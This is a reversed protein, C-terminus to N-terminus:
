HPRYLRFGVVGLAVGVAGAPIALVEGRVLVGVAIVLGFWGGVMLLAALVDRLHTHEDLSRDGM